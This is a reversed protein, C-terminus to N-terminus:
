DQDQDYEPHRKEPFFVELYFEAVVSKNEAIILATIVQILLWQSVGGLELILLMVEAAEWSWSGDLVTQVWTGTGRRRILWRRRIVHSQDDLPLLCWKYLIFHYVKEAINQIKNYLQQKIFINSSFAYLKGETFKRCKVNTWIRCNDLVFIIFSTKKHICFMKYVIERRMNFVNESLIFIM